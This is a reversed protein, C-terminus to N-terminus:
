QRIGHLIGHLRVVNECAGTDADAGGTGAGCQWVHRSGTLTTRGAVVVIDPKDAICRIVSGTHPAAAILVLLQGCLVASGGEVLIDPALDHGTDVLSQTVRAEGNRVADFGCLDAAFGALQGNRTDAGVVRTTVSDVRFVKGLSGYRCLHAVGMHECGDAAYGSEKRARVARLGGM